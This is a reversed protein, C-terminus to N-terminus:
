GQRARAARQLIDRQIKGAANRPITEVQLLFKPTSAGLRARAAATIAPLDPNPDTVLAAWIDDIGTADPLGFAAADRITPIALLVDEILSPSLKVGGTNIVESARGALTLCGDPWVAGLDGTLFCGHQFAAATGDPDQYYGPGVYPGGIRLLGTEGPPLVEGSPGLAEVTVGPHIYGVAGPRAALLRTPASAIVHVESAGYVEVISECLCREAQLRLPTPLKGGTVEIEVMSPVPGQNQPLAAVLARLILPSTLISNVGHQRIAAPARGLDSLVLTGGAFLTRLIDHFGMAGGLGAACIHVDDREGQAQLQGLVRQAILAHSAPIYKPQGSTGSSAFVRCIATADPHIPGPPVGALDPPIAAWLDQMKLTPVDGTAPAPLCRLDLMDPPLAPDATAIGLRALALTIALGPFEDPHDIPIAATMGPEAGLARLRAALADIIGDLARYTLPTNDARILAM